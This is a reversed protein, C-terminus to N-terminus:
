TKRASRGSRPTNATNIRQQYATVSRRDILWVERTGVRRKLAQLIGNACLRAVYSQSLGLIAAAETTTLTYNPM